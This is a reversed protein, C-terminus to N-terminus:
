IIKSLLASDKVDTRITDVDNTKIVPSAKFMDKLTTDTATETTYVKSSGLAFAQVGEYDTIVRLNEITASTTGTYIMGAIKCSTITTGDSNWTRTYRAVSEKIEKIYAVCNTITGCASTSVSRVFCTSGEAKIIASVYVNDIVGGYLEDGVASAQSTINVDVLALNKVLGTIKNFMGKSTANLTMGTISHGNGDFVGDFTSAPAPLVVATLTLDTTLIYYKGKSDTATRMAKFEDVNSITITITEGEPAVEQAVLLANDKNYVEITGDEVGARFTNISYLKNTTFFEQRYTAETYTKTEPIRAVQLNAVDTVLKISTCDVYRGGDYALIGVKRGTISTGDMYTETYTKAPTVAVVCIVTNTITPAKNISRALGATGEVALNAVEIYVNDIKADDSSVTDCIVGGQGNLVAETIVLNKIVGSFKNFLGNGTNSSFTPAIIKYGKGDLTGAFTANEKAKLSVGKLNIDNALEFYGSTANRMLEIDSADKVLLDLVEVNDIIYAYKDNFVAIKVNEGTTFATAGDILGNTVTFETETSAVYKIVRTAEIGNFIGSVDAKLRSLKYDIDKELIVHKIEVEISDSYVDGDYTISATLRTKGAKKGTLVNNDYSCIEEDEVALTVPVSLEAGQEYAVCTINQTNEYDVGELSGIAYLSCSDVNFSLSVDRVVDIEIYKTTYDVDVTKWQAVVRIQTKGKSVATIVGADSVTAVSADLSSFTYTVNECAVNNYKLNVEVPFTDGPLMTLTRTSVSLEPIEQRDVITLYCTASSEGIKATIITQGVALPTIVGGNVKAVSEDSSIWQIDEENGTTTAKLTFDDLLDMEYAYYNLEIEYKDDNCAVLNVMLSCIAVLMVMLFLKKKM